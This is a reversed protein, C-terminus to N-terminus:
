EVKYDLGFKYLDGARFVLVNLDGFEKSISDGVQVFNFLESKDRTLIINQEGYKNELRMTAHNHNKKDMIKDVVVGHFKSLKISDFAKQNIEKSSPLNINVVLIIITLLIINALLLYFIKKKFNRM